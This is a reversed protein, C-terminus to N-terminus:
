DAAVGPGTLDEKMLENLNWTDLFALVETIKGGVITLHWAYSNSYTSGDISTATGDWIVVVQNGQAVIHKVAPTIPERLRSHIPKVAEEVLEYKSEYTGSLPSIGAVTWRADDALLDFVTGQGNKWKEFSEAILAANDAPEMASSSSAAVSFHLVGLIAALYAPRSRLIRATPKM